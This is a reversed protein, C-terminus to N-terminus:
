SLPALRVGCGIEEQAERLVGATLSEDEDEVGGGIGTLEIIQSSDEARPPRRTRDSCPCQCCPCRIRFDFRGCTVPPAPTPASPNRYLLHAAPSNTAPDLNRKWA